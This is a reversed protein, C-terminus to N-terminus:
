NSFSVTLAVKYRVEGQDGNVDQIIPFSPALSIGWNKSFRCRAGPSFYLTNSGSNPDKDGDEKDKQLYVDLLEGFVSFQPFRTISETVRYGLAVGVDLRDGVRFHNNETRFTYLASADMTLQSTLFRSYGVGVPFDWAGTGPQDTPSLREGNSLRVDDRGTPAKVGAIIALNGPAGHLIRYKGTITLDTLGQPNAKAEEISGDDQLGASKFDNGIFYGTSAGVQFNEFVGIAFDVSTVFGHDLADFDGGSRARAAAGANSFKEFQSFDERLSLEFHGPKLTEGSITSSGGGSAGPGHNALVPVSIFFLVLSCYKRVSGRSLMLNLM